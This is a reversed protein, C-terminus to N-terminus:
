VWKSNCLYSKPSQLLHFHFNMHHKAFNLEVIFCQWFRNRFHLNTCVMQLPQLTTRNDQKMTRRAKHWYWVLCQDLLIRHWCSYKQNRQEPHCQLILLSMFSSVSKQTCTHTNRGTRRKLSSRGKLLMIAEVCLLLNLLLIGSPKPPGRM